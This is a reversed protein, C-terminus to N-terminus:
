LCFCSSKKGYGKKRLAEQVACRFVENVNGNQCYMASSRVHKEINNIEVIDEALRKSRDVAEKTMQSTLDEKTGVLIMAAAMFVMCKEYNVVDRVWVTDVNNLSAMSTCDYCIIAVDSHGYSLKRINYLDEQGATDRVVFRM